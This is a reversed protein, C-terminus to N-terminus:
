FLDDFKEDVTMLRPRADNEDVLCPKGDPRVILREVLAWIEPHGAKKKGSATLKEIGAPGLVKRAFALDGLLTDLLEEAEKADRWRRPPRNGMVAKHGPTPRGALADALADAHLQELWTSIMSKHRLIYGRREPTLESKNLPPPSGIRDAEDIDDFKMGILDLNFSAYEGCTPKLACWRCGKESAKLPANADYTRAGALRVEEGFTLLDDLSVRWEGGGASHRPQDITLLFDTAPSIKSAINNWFGLAYIMLQSNSDPTVPEGRGFKLDNIIILDESVIGADLTGFQGPLWADLNVRHEVFLEGPQERLWDIGPQLALAMEDDFEIEFEGVTLVEGVFDAPDAGTKLCRERITHAATGEAAAFSTTDDLGELQM